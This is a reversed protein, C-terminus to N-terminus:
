QAHNEAELFMGLNFWMDSMVSTAVKHRLALDDSKMDADLDMIQEYLEEANKYKGLSAMVKPKLDKRSVIFSPVITCYSM